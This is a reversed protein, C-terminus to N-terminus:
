VQDRQHSAPREAPPTRDIEACQKLIDLLWTHFPNKEDRRHRLAQITFTRIEIPPTRWELDFVPAFKEVLSKPLTGILDSQAVTALAPFFLPVSAVVRRSLGTKELTMDVIGSMDGVESVLIHRADIYSEVTLEERFLPHGKRAIVRYEETYLIDSMLEKGYEWYYGIAFDIDGDSVARMAADRGLELSSLRMQPAAIDLRSILPPVLRSLVNDRGAIRIIRESKEPEFKGPASLTQNLTEVIQRIKPELAGAVATPELGHARRLFLPDEFIERLRRLSHSISSQTLGLEAAVLVAKRHRMLGLFVLLLTLDIKRLKNQDIDSM